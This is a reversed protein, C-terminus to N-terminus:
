VINFSVKVAIKGATRPYNFLVRRQPPGDPMTFEDVRVSCDEPVELEVRGREGTIIVEGAERDIDVPLFTSWIFKVGDGQTLEYDDIITLRDPSPSEFTRQWKRYIGKWRPTLNMTARFSMEDGEAEPVVGVERTPAPRDDLGTPLLMNHREAHKMLSSQPHDYGIQGPDAAFTQGAFELVFSGKDEHNHSANAINSVVLLKVWEGELKRTSSTLGMTSMHVFPRPPPGQEPIQQQLVMEMPSTPFPNAGEISKRYISVWASDPLLAAMFAGASRGFRGWSDAFPVIDQGDDFSRIVEAFDATRQFADPTVDSLPKETMRSYYYLGEGGHGVVTAFYAGGEEYGGDPLIVGAMSEHLMRQALDAYPLVRPMNRSLVGYGAFWGDSFWALQNMHHIYDYRWANYTIWNVGDHAIRRILYDRAHDTMLKGAADFIVSLGEVIKSQNFARRDHASGPLISYFNPHWNETMAVAMALRATRRLLKADELVLAAIAANAMRSTVSYLNIERDRLHRGDGGSGEQVMEEPIQSMAWERIDALPSKGNEEVYDAHRKRLDTLEEETIFLGFQPKFAPECDPHKLYGRWRADFRNLYDLLEELRESNQLGLWGLHAAAPENREIHLEITVGELSKADGLELTYERKEGGTSKCDLVREGVDTDARLQLRSNRPLTAHFLLRDYGSLDITEDFRRQMRLAPGHKPAHQWSVQTGTVVPNEVELGHANGDDIRWKELTSLHRNYFPEILGEAENIRRINLPGGSKEEQWTEDDVM